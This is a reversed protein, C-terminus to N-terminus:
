LPRPTRSKNTKPPTRTKRTDPKATKVGKSDASKSKGVGKADGGKAKAKDTTESEQDTSGRASPPERKIKIRSDTYMELENILKYENLPSFQFSGDNYCLVEMKRNKYLHENKIKEHRRRIVRRIGSMDKLSGIIQKRIKRTKLDVLLKIYYKPDKPCQVTAVPNTVARLSTRIAHLKDQWESRIAGSFVQATGCIDSVRKGKNSVTEKGTSTKSDQDSSGEDQIMNDKHTKEIRIMKPALDAVKSRSAKSKKLRSVVFSEPIENSLCDEKEKSMKSCKYRKYPFHKTELINGSDILTRNMM